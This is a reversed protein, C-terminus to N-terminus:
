NQRVIDSHYYIFIPKDIFPLALFALPFPHHILIADYDKALRKFDALFSWSLPMGLLRGFSGSKIVRVGNIIEERGAGRRLGFGGCDPRGRGNLNDAIDKVVTEVGGLWPYYLKNVQLIKM